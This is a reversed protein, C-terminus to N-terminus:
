YFTEISSVENCAAMVHSVIENDPLSGSDQWVKLARLIEDKEIKKGNSTKESCLTSLNCIDENLRQFNCFYM